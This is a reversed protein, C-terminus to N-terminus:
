DRDSLFKRHRALVTKNRMKEFGIQQGFVDDLGYNGFIANIQEQHNSPLKPKKKNGGTKKVVKTYETTVKKAGLKLSTWCQFIILFKISNIAIVRVTLFTRWFNCFTWWSHKQFTVHFFTLTSLIFFIM